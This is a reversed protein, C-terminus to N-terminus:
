CKEGAEPLKAVMGGSPEAGPGWQPSGNGLSGRKHGWLLNRAVGRLPLRLQLSDFVLTICTFM